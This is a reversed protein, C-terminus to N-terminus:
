LTTALPLSPPTFGATYLAKGRTIRFNSVWGDFNGGGANDAGIRGFGLSVVNALYATTTGASTGNVWLTTTTGKRTVALHAWVTTSPTGGGTIRNAGTLFVVYNSGNTYLVLANADGRGDWITRTGSATNHLTMCELTFDSSQADVMPASVDLWDGSGDLRMTTTMGTPAKTSDYKANGAPTMTRNFTSQDIFTTSNNAANDNAVLLIAPQPNPYGSLMWSTSAIKEAVMSMGAPIQVPVNIANTNNPIFLSDATLALKITNIQDFFKLTTGPPYAVNANSDITFTRDNADSIPHILWNNADGMVTTYNASQSFVTVPGPVFPQTPLGLIIAEYGSSEADMGPPGIPGIAGMAGAAGAAGPTGVGPPGMEGDQGDELFLVVRQASLPSAPTGLGILTSDTSIRVVPNAPDANNTNLGTVTQVGDAVAHLPSGPTGLGTITADTSVRVVPNAPDTNDTNLGTVSEVKSDLATQLDTQDALTGTIDGWAVSGSGGTAVLPDGPTGDGTITVGDVSIQVIPNAPDTNDTNLGTVSQVGGTAGDDALGAWYLFWVRNVTGTLPDVLPAEPRPIRKNM